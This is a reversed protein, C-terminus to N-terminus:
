KVGLPDSCRKQQLTNRRKHVVRRRTQDRVRLRFVPRHKPPVKIARATQRGLSRHRSRNCLFPAHHAIDFAALSGSVSAACLRRDV